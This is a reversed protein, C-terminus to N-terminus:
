SLYLDGKKQADLLANRKDERSMEKVTKAEPAASTTASGGAPSPEPEKPAGLKGARGLVVYKADELSMGGKVKELLEDKHDRAAPNEAIVDAYGAYFDRERTAEAAKAEAETAKATAADREESAERTKKSLDKIRKESESQEIIIENGESDVAM